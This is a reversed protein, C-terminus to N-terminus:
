RHRTRGVIAALGRPYNTNGRAVLGLARVAALVAGADENEVAITRMKRGDVEVDTLEAMCGGVTYRTRRKHVKVARVAPQRGVLETLFQGLTYEGRALPPPPVALAEFVEAVTAAPLPFGAKMVPLWQELGAADVKRLVKVDLLANRIKVNSGTETLLYWEDSEQVNDPELGALLTEARGFSMAFKRWEWRPAITAM